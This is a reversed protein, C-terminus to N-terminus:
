DQMGQQAQQQAQYLGTYYGAYYWSMLLMKLSEDHVLPEDSFIAGHWDFSGGKADGHRLTGSGMM